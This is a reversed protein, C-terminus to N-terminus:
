VIFYVLHLVAVSHIQYEDPRITNEFAANKSLIFNRIIEIFM